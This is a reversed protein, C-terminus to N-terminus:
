VNPTRYNLWLYKYFNIPEKLGLLFINYAPALTCSLVSISEIFLNDSIQNIFKSLYRCFGIDGTRTSLINLRFSFNQINEGPM